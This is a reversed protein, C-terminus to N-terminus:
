FGLCLCVDWHHRGRPGGDNMALLVGASGELLGPSMDSEDPGDGLMQSCRAIIQAYAPRAQALKRVLHLVGAYGHCLSLDTLLFTSEAQTIRDQVIQQARASWDTRGLALGASHLAFGASLDGYCWAVRSAEVGEQPTMYGYACSVFQDSRCAILAEVSQTLLASTAAGALRHRLAGAMLQIVGPLGHALGLDIHGDAKSKASALPSMNEPRTRWHRGAASVSSSAMLAAEVALYLRQAADRDTRMLAYAGIGAVGHILDFHRTADNAALYDLLQDDLDNIFEHVAAPVLDQCISRTFEFAYLIGVLGTWLTIPQESHRISDVLLAVAREINRRREDTPCQGYLQAQLLLAGAMGRSLTFNSPNGLLREVVCAELRQHAPTM